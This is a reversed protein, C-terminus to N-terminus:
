KNQGFYKTNRILADFFKQFDERLIVKDCNNPQNKDRCPYGWQLKMDWFHSYINEDRAILRIRQIIM